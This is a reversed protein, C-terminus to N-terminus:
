IVSVEQRRNQVNKLLIFILLFYKHARNYSCFIILGLVVCDPSYLMTFISPKPPEHYKIRNQAVQRPLLFISGHHCVQAPWTASFCPPGFDFLTAWLDFLVRYM